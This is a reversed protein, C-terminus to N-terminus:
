NTPSRYFCISFDVSMGQSYINWACICHAVKHLICNLETPFDVKSLTSLKGKPVATRYRMLAGALSYKLCRTFGSTNSHRPTCLNVQFCTAHLHRLTACASSASAGPCSQTQGKFNLESHKVQQAYTAVLHASVQCVFCVCVCAHLFSQCMSCM